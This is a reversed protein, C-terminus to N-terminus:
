PHVESPRGAIPQDTADDLRLVQAGIVYLLAVGAVAGAVILVEVLSPTYSLFGATVGKFPPSYSLREGLHGVVPKLSFMQGAYVLDNRGVFMGLLAFGSAGALWSPARGKEGLLIALPLAMGLFVEFLWFNIFLPGTLLAQTVQYQHYHQGSLGSITRWVTLMLTLGLFLALLKRLADLLGASDGGAVGQRAYHDRLHVVVLLLAAGSALATVMMYVPLLPGSWFPRAHSLGFVSGLNSTPHVTLAAAVTAIGFRRAGAHDGVLMLYLEVTLVVLYIGYLTGMWWIPSAPNPSLVVLKLLLFPRELETGICVFGIGLTVMALWTARRGIPEFARYGFVHGLTGILGVGTSTTVFFVYSAILIGWSMESTTGMVKHGRALAVAAAGVGVGVVALLFRLIRRGGRVADSDSRDGLFLSALRAAGAPDFIRDLHLTM